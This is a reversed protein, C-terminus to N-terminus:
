NKIVVIKLENNLGKLNSFLAKNNELAGSFLRKLAHRFLSVLLFEYSHM